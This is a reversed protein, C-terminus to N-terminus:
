QRVFGPNGGMYLSSNSWPLIVENEGTPYTERAIYHKPKSLKDSGRVGEEVESMVTFIIDNYDTDSKDMRDEFFLVISNCDPSYFTNYQIGQFSQALPNNMGAKGENGYDCQYNPNNMNQKWNTFVPTYNGSVSYNVWGSQANWSNGAVFFVIRDGANFRGDSTNYNKIQWTQGKTMGGGINGFIIYKDKIKKTTYGAPIESLDNKIHADYYGDFTAGAPVVYFGFSNKWSAWQGVFSIYVATNEKVEIYRPVDLPESFLTQIIQHPLSPSTRFVSGSAPLLANNEFLWAMFDTCADEIIPPEPPTGPNFDIYLVKLGGLGDAVFAINGKSAVFNASNNTGFSIRNEKCLLIQEVGNHVAIDYWYLGKEGNALLLLNSTIDSGYSNKKKDSNVSVSNTVDKEDNWGPQDSGPAALDDQIGGNPDLMRLGSENLAAFVYQKQGKWTLLESKADAQMSEGAGSYFSSESSGDLGYKSIRAPQSQMLYTYTGDVDVSRAYEKEIFKVVSNDATNIIYLGGQTGNTGDGTTIYARGSSYRVSTAQFSTLHKVYYADREQFTMDGNLPVVMYFAYDFRKIMNKGDYGFNPDESAGAAYILKNVPDYDIASIEAKGMELFAINTVTAGIDKGSGTLTIRFIAIGGKHSDAQNPTSRTNYAVFAYDANETIKVHTAQVEEGDVTFTPVNAILKFRYDNGYFVDTADQTSKARLRNSIRNNFEDETSFGEPYENRSSVLVAANNRVVISGNMLTFSAGEPIEQGKEDKNCSMLWTCGLIIIIWSFKKM